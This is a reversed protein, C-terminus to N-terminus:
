NGISWLCRTQEKTHPSTPSTHNQLVQIPIHWWFQGFTSSNMFDTFLKREGKEPDSVRCCRMLIKTVIRTINWSPRMPIIKEPEM